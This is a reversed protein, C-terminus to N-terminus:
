VRDSERIHICQRQGGDGDAAEARAAAQTQARVVPGAIVIAAGITDDSLRGARLQINAHEVNALVATGADDVQRQGIVFDLRGTVDFATARDGQVVLVAFAVAQGHRVNVVAAVVRKQFGRGLAPHRQGAGVAALAHLQGRAGRTEGTGTGDLAMVAAGADHLDARGARQCQGAAGHIGLAHLQGRARGADGARHVNLRMVAATAVEDEIGTAAVDCEGVAEIVVAHAIVDEDLVGVVNLQLPDLDVAGAPQNKAADERGRAGRQGAVDGLGAVDGGVAVAGVQGALHDAVDGQVVGVLNVPHAIEGGAAIEREVVLVASQDQLACQYRAAAIDANVATIGQRYGAGARHRRVGVGLADRQLGAAVVPSVGGIDLARNGRAGPADAEGRGITVDGGAAGAGQGGAARDGDGRRGVVGAALGGVVGGRDVRRNRSAYTAVVIDVDGGGAREAVVGGTGQRGGARDGDLRVPVTGILAVQGEAAIDRGADVADLQSGAAGDVLGAADQAGGAGQGTRILAAAIRTRAQGGRAAHHAEHGVVFDAVETREIKIVFALHGEVQAVHAAAEGQGAVDFVRVAGNGDGGQATREVQHAVVDIGAAHGGAARADSQGTAAEDLGEAAFDAGGAASSSRRACAAVAAAGDGQGAM